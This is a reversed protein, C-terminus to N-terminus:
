WRGTLARYTQLTREAVRDARFREEAIERGRHGFRCTKHRDRLLEILRTAIMDIDGVDVLYGSSSDEVLWPIGGIRTAVVPRGVAMAASLAMPATEQASCLTFVLCSNLREKLTVQTLESEHTVSGELGWKTIEQIMSEYYQREVIPGLLHLKAAPIWRIVQRFAQVLDIVRKRAIINGVYLVTPNDTPPETWPPFFDDGVPNAIYVIAQKNLFTRLVSVTYEGANSIVCDANQLSRRIIERGIWLRYAGVPGAFHTDGSAWEVLPEVGHISLVLKDTSRCAIAYESCGQAHVVDPRIQDYVRQVRWADVTVARLGYLRQETALWHFTVPGRQETFSRKITRNCSVVHLEVDGQKALAHVLHLAVAEVGGRVRSEDYPYVTGLAVRLRCM